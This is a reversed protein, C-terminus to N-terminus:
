EKKDCIEIDKEQKKVFRDAQEEEAETGCEHAPADKKFSVEMQPYPININYKMFLIYM